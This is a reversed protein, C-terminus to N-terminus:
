LAKGHSAHETASFLHLYLFLFLIGCAYLFSLVAPTLIIMSFCVVLCLFPTGMFGLCRLLTCFFLGFWLFSIIVCVCVCM